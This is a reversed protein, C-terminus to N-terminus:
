AGRLRARVWTLPGRVRAMMHVCVCVYVRRCSPCVNPPPASAPQQQQAPPPSAVLSATHASHAPSAASTAAYGHAPRVASALSAAQLDLALQDVEESGNGYDLATPSTAAYPLPTRQPTLPDMTVDHPHTTSALASAVPPSEASVAFTKPWASTADDSADEQQVDITPAPASASAGLFAPEGFFDGEELEDFTPASAAFAHPQPPVPKKLNQPFM